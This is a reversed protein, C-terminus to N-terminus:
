CYRQLLMFLMVAKRYSSLLNSILLCMRLFLQEDVKMYFKMIKGCTEGLQPHLFKVFDRVYLHGCPLVVMPAQFRPDDWWRSGHYM